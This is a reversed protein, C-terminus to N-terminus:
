GTVLERMRAILDRSGLDASLRVLRGYYEESISLEDEYIWSCMTDFALAFEGAVLLDRVDVAVSPATIPSEELLEEIKAAYEVAEM